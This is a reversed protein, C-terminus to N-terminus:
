IGPAERWRRSTTGVGGLVMKTLWLLLPQYNGVQFAGFLFGSHPLARYLMAPTHAHAAVMLLCYTSFMVVCIQTRRPLFADVADRTSSTEAASGRRRRRTYDLELDFSSASNTRLQPM